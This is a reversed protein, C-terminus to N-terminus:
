KKGGFKEKLKEVVFPPVMFSADGGHSAITRVTSSSIYSNEGSTVLLVSDVKPNLKRNTLAFMFEYDFDTLARLGRVVTYVGKKECYDVMLGDYYEVNIKDSISMTTQKIMDIREQPSFLRNKNDNEMVVVILEDFLKVSRKIIDLHGNTIPDFSGPYIAQM